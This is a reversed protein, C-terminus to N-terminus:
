GIYPSCYRRDIDDYALRACVFMAIGFLFLLMPRAPFDAIEQLTERNQEYQQEALYTALIEHFYKFDDENFNSESGSRGVYIEWLITHLRSDEKLAQTEVAEIPLYSEPSKKVLYAAYKPVATCIFIDASDCKGAYANLHKEVDRYWCNEVKSKFFLPGRDLIKAAIDAHLVFVMPLSAVAACIWLWKQGFAPWQKNWLRSWLLLLIFLCLLAGLWKLITSASWFSFLQLFLDRM